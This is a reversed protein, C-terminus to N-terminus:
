ATRPAAETKIRRRENRLARMGAATAGLPLRMGRASEDNIKKIKSGYNLGNIVDKIRLYIAVPTEYKYLTIILAIMSLLILGSLLFEILDSNISEKEYYINDCNNSGKM